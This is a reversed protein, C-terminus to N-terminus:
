EGSKRGFKIEEQLERSMKPYSKLAKGFREESLGLGYHPATDFNRFGLDLACHVVDIAHQEEMKTYLGALSSLGIIVENRTVKKTRPQLSFSMQQTSSTSSSSAARARSSDGSPRRLVLFQQALSALIIALFFARFFGSHLPM